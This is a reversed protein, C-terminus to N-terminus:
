NQLILRNLNLCEFVNYVKLKYSLIMKIGSLIISHDDAILIRTKSTDSM